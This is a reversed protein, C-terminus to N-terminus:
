PKWANMGEKGVHYKFGEDPYQKEGEKEPWDSEVILGKERLDDGALTRVYCRCRFGNPPYWQDWYPDDMHYVKGFQDGHEPRTRSDLVGLYQLYPRTERVEQIQKWRGVNFASALNTRYINDLRAATLGAAALWGKQELRGTLNKMFQKATLGNQQADELVAKIERLIDEEAVKAVTFAGANAAAWVEKWGTPSLAIGKGAFYAIAEEFGQDFDQMIGTVASM